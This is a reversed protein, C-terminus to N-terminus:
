MDMMGVQLCYFANKNLNIAGMLLVPLFCPRHFHWDLVYKLNTQSGDSDNTLVPLPPNATL